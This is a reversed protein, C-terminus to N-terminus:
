KQVCRVSYAILTYNSPGLMIDTYAFFSRGSIDGGWWYGGSRWHNWRNVNTYYLGAFANNSAVTWWKGTGPVDANVKDILDTIEADVPLRWGAPCATSAQEWTYYYGNLQGAYDELGEVIVGLPNGDTGYGFAIGTPTGEMSNEVMWCKNGYMYTLYDHNGIRLPVANGNTGCNVGKITVIVNGTRGTPDTLTLATEGSTFSSRGSTLRFKITEGPSTNDGGTRNLLIPDAQLINQPDSVASIKWSTNSRVTLSHEGGDLTYADDVDTAIHYNVHRLCIGTSASHGNRTVTFNVNSAKEIFPNTKIEEATLTAPRISFLKYGLGSPDSYSTTTGPVDSDIDYSFAIGKSVAVSAVTVIADAPTWHLLFQRVDIRAGAASHFALEQIDQLGSADKISIEVESSIRQTVKVAFDLNGAKVHIYAIREADSENESVSFTVNDANGIGSFSGSLDNIWTVTAGGDLPSDTASITWGATVDTKVTFRNNSIAEKYLTFETPSVDLYNQEDATNEGCAGVFMALTALLSLKQTPNM